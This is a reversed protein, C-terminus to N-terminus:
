LYIQQLVNSLYLVVCRIGEGIGPGDNMEEVRIFKRLEEAQAKQVQAEKMVDNRAGDLENRERELRALADRCEALQVETELARAKYEELQRKLPQM